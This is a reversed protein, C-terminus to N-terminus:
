RLLRREHARESNHRQTRSQLSSFLHRRRLGLANRLGLTAINERSNRSSNRRSGTANGSATHEERDRGRELLSVPSYFTTLSSNSSERAPPIASHHLRQTYSPTEVVAETFIGPTRSSSASATNESPQEATTSHQQDGTGEEPNPGSSPESKISTSSSSSSSSSRSILHTASSASSSTQKSCDVCFFLLM